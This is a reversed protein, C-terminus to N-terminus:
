LKHATESNSTKHGEQTRWRRHIWVWQEPYERVYKELVASWERTYRKVDEDRDGTQVASIPSEAVFRFTNDSKRIMFVPVIDAGSAMALKVPATPTYAAKGFFDVFVGDVTDVDQDALIGLARGSKLVKLIKKPSEDRYIVGTGFRKRVSNILEDYKHFYLRRGIVSGDVGRLSLYSTILEWNGFHSALLIMGKGRSSVKEINEMGKAESVLAIIDGDSMRACKIWDVGNRALNRFVGRAIYASESPSVGLAEELNRAAIDRYKPLVRFAVAGLFSALAMSVRRPLIGTIFFLIKAWYYIHYRRTKVKAM